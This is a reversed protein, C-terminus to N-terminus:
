ADVVLMLGPPDNVANVGIGDHNKLDKGLLRLLSWKADDIGAFSAKLTVDCNSSCLFSPAM